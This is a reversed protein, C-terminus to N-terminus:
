RGEPKLEELRHVMQRRRVLYKQRIEDLFLSEEKDLM